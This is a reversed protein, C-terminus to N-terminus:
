RSIPQTLAYLFAVFIIVIMSLRVLDGASFRVVLDTLVFLGEASGSAVTGSGTVREVPDHVLGSGVVAHYNISM